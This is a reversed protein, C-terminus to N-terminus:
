AMNLILEIESPDSPVLSTLCEATKPRIVLIDEIRIGIGRYEEPYEPEDPVYLGPEISIVQGPRLSKNVPAGESAWDHM